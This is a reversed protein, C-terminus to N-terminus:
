LTNTPGLQGSGASSGYGPVCSCEECRSLCSNVQADSCFPLEAINYGDVDIQIPTGDMWPTTQTVTLAYRAGEELEVGSPWCMGNVKFPSPVEVEDNWPVIRRHATENCFAGAADAVNFAVHSALTVAVYLLAVVSMVPMFRWKALRMVTRYGSNNRLWHIWSNPLAPATQGHPGYATCTTQLRAKLRSGWSIFVGVAAAAISLSWPQRMHM